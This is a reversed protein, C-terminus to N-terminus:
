RTAESPSAPVKKLHVTLRTPQPNLNKVLVYFAETDPGHYPLTVAVRGLGSAIPRLTSDALAVYAKRAPGTVTIEVQDHGNGEFVFARYKPSSSYEEPKSTQGNDLTGIIKIDASSFPAASQAPFSVPVISAGATKEQGGALMAGFLAGVSAFWLLKKM